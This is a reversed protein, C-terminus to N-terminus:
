SADFQISLPADGAILNGGSANALNVNVVITATGGTYAGTWGGPQTDSNIDTFGDFTYGITVQSTTKGSFFPLYPVFTVTGTYQTGNATTLPISTPLSGRSSTHSINGLGFVNVYLSSSGGSIGAQQVLADPNFKLLNFSSGSNSTADGYKNIILMGIVTLKTASGGSGTTLTAALNTIDVDFNDDDGSGGNGEHVFDTELPQRNLTDDAGGGRDFEFKFPIFKRPNDPSNIEKETEEQTTIVDTSNATSNFSSEVPNSIFARNDDEYVLVDSAAIASGSGGYDTSAIQLKLRSLAHQSVVIHATAGLGDTVTPFDAKLFTSNLNFGSDTIMTQGTRDPLTLKVLEFNQGEAIELADQAINLDSDNLKYGISGGPSLRTIGFKAGVDGSVKFYRVDNAGIYGVRSDDPVFTSGELRGLVISRIKPSSPAQKAEVTDIYIFLNDGTVTAVSGFTYEIKLKMSVVENDANKITDSITLTYAASSDNQIDIDLLDGVNPPNYIGGVYGGFVYKEGSTSTKTILTFENVVTQKNGAYDTASYSQKTNLADGATIFKSSSKIEYTGAVSNKVGPAASTITITETHGDTGITGGATLTFTVVGTTSNYSATANGSITLSSPLDFGELANLDVQLTVTNINASATFAKTFTTGSVTYGGDEPLDNGAIQLNNNTLGAITISVDAQSQSGVNGGDADGEAAAAVGLGQVSFESADLNDDTLSDGRLHNYFKNEKGIFEQISGSQLDTTISDLYWGAQREQASLSNFETTTDPVLEILRALTLNDSAGYTVGDITGLYRFRKQQSGEYALTKFSKVTDSAENFLVNISSEVASGSYFTNRTSNDHSYIRGNRFTYYTDNISLGSEPIYSRFSTWGGGEGSSESFAVTESTVNGVSDTKHLTLIYESKDESYSGILKTSSQLNDGFYDSMGKGSIDTLGDRSLRLVVGRAKDTFYSRYAYSVFSEPNKSIGYEGVYPVAQGLVNTSAILQPNGDANFIADKNAVINIIKDENCSILNSDRAELKQISGYEPNLDKTIKDAILFQNTENIGNKNVYIGSYILSAKKHEEVVERELVTSVKPGKDIFVQNFDDRIRNSEIGNGFTFCNFWSLIDSGVHGGNEVNIVTKGGANETADASVRGSTVIDTEFGNTDVFTKTENNVIGTVIRDLTIKRDTVDVNTVVADTGKLTSGVKVIGVADSIEHYLDLDALEAPETEFVAPTITELEDGTIPQEEERVIFIRTAPKDSGTADLFISEEQYPEETTDLLKIEWIRTFYNQITGISDKDYFDKFDGHTGLVIEYVESTVGDETAFQIKTGPKLNKFGQYNEPLNLMYNSIAQLIDGSDSTSNIQTGSPTRLQGLGCFTLGFYANNTVPHTHKKSSSLNIPHTTIDYPKNSTFTERDNGANLQWTIKPKVGIPISTVSELIKEEETEPLTEYPRYTLQTAQPVKINEVIENSDEVKVFFKGSLEPGRGQQLEYIEISPTTVIELWNDGPVIASGLTLTYINGGTFTRKISNIDYYKSVDSNNGDTIRIIRRFPTTLAEDLKNGQSPGKFTISSSGVSFEVDNVTQETHILKREFEVYKPPELAIDLVKLKVNDEVVQELEHKKKLEIFDGIKVKNVEASPFSLWINGDEATYFNSLVLNYYESAGEKLFWKYHTAWDPADSGINGVLKNKLASNKKEIFTSADKDTFVPSQRGYKDQYVVGLQYNRQSKVSPIGRNKKDYQITITGSTPMADTFYLFTETATTTINRPYQDFPLEDGDADIVTVDQGQIPFESFKNPSLTLKRTGQVYAFDESEIIDTSTQDAIIIPDKTTYGEKYNGYVIRNGILEQAKATKPVADFPRTLQSSEVLSKLIERNLKYTNENNKLTTVIRVNNSNSEKYLIDVSKVGKPFAGDVIDPLTIELERLRNEMGLNTGTSPRYDYLGPVFAVNSFPSFCSYEGDNYKYRYAFRPFKLKYLADDEELFCTYSDSGPSIRDDISIIRLSVSVSSTGGRIDTVTARIILDVKKNGVNEVRKIRIISGRTWATPFIQVTIDTTDGAKFLVSGSSFDHTIDLPNTEIGIKGSQFTASKNLTPAKLPSQKIVTIHEEKFDVGEFTTHTNFDTSVFGGSKTVNIKKPEYQDDTWFLLGDIINIGTILYSSSFNLISNKDVLVPVVANTATDYEAIASVDDSKIFWYIKNNETDAISGICEPNTLNSIYDSSWAVGDKNSRREQNGLVNQVSGVNSGESTVIEVNQADRYYGQPVLREDLDKNM